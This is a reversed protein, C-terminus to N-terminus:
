GDTPIGAAALPLVIRGVVPGDGASTWLISVDSRGVDAGACDVEDTL